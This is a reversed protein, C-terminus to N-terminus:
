DGMHGAEPLQVPDCVSGATHAKAGCRGCSFTPHESLTHIDTVDTMNCLKDTAGRM